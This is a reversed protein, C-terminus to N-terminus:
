LNSHYIGNLRKVYADRQQKFAKYDVKLGETGSVGYDKMIAVEEMFNALNFCVKKPVCGVNVCTGGIERNELVCVSAGHQAARRASAIGGSGAGVVLYDYAKVEKQESEVM